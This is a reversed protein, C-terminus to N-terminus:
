RRSLRTEGSSKDVRVRIQFASQLARVLSETQGISFDGSIPLEQLSPDTIVLHGPGYRNVQVVAEGLPTGRFMFKGQTWGTAVVPDISRRRWIDAGASLQDGLGLIAIQEQRTVNVQGEIVTVDAQADGLNVDFRTGIDRITNGAAYVTFSRHAEHAVNYVAEGRIMHVARASQDMTVELVTDANLVLQSGDALTLQRVEQAATAYRVTVPPPAIAALEDTRHMLKYGGVSVGILLCAAAAMLWRSARNRGFCTTRSQSRAANVAQRRWTAVEDDDALGSLEKWLQETEAYAAAHATSSAQWAEFEQREKPSCGGGNLRAFWREAQGFISELDELRDM